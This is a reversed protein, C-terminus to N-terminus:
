RGVRLLALHRDVVDGAEEATIQELLVSLSLGLVLSLVATAQTNAEIGGRLDGSAAAASLEAAIFGLLNRANTFADARRLGGDTLAAGAFGLYVRMAAESDGDHPLFAGAVTRIRDLPDADDGLLALRKLILAGIGASQIDLTGILLGAKDGFYHQVLSVSMDAEAAVTRFSVAGVGDTAVIRAVAGAIHRRREDHDVQKPM